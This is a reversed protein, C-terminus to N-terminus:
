KNPGRMLKGDIMVGEDISSDEWFNEDSLKISFLAVHIKFLKLFTSTKKYFKNFHQILWIYM